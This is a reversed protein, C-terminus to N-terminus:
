VLLFLSPFTKEKKRKPRTKERKKQLFFFLSSFFVVWREFVDGVDNVKTRKERRVKHLESRVMFEKEKGCFMAEACAASAGLTRAAQCLRGGASTHRRSRESAREPSVTSSANLRRWSTPGFARVPRPGGPTSVRRTCWVSSKRTLPAHTHTFLAAPYHLFFSCLSCRFRQVDNQPDVTKKKKKKKKGKKRAEEEEKGEETKRKTM